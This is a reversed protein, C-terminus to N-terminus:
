EGLLKNLLANIESAYINDFPKVFEVGMIKNIKESSFFGDVLLSKLCPYKELTDMTLDGPQVREM